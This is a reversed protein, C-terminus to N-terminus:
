GDPDADDDAEEDESDDVFESLQANAGDFWNRVKLLSEFIHGRSEGGNDLHEQLHELEDDWHYDLVEELAEAVDTPLTVKGPLKDSM